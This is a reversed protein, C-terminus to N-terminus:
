PLVQINSFTNDKIRSLYWDTSKSVQELKNRDVSVALLFNMFDSYNMNAAKAQKVMDAHTDIGPLTNVEVVYRTSAKYRIDVRLFDDAQIAKKVKIALKGIAETELDTLRAPVFLSPARADEIPLYKSEESFVGPTICKTTDIEMIPLIFHPGNGIVGVTYERDPLYEEIIPEYKMKNLKDQLAYANHAISSADIEISYGERRPKVFVPFWKVEDVEYTRPCIIGYGTLVKKTVDKDLSIANTMTGSGIRPIMLMDLIAPIHAERDRTGTNVQEAVNLVVEMRSGRLYEYTRENAQYIIVEHGERRYADGMDRVDPHAYFIEGGQEEYDELFNAVIGIRM